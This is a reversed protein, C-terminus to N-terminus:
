LVFNKFRDVGSSRRASTAIPGRLACSVPTCCFVKTQFNAKAEAFVSSCFFENSVRPWYRQFQHQRQTNFNNIIKGILTSRMPSSRHLVRSNSNEHPVVTCAKASSVDLPGKKQRIIINLICYIYLSLMKM